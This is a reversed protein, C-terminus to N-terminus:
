TNFKTPYEVNVLSSWFFVPVLHLEQVEYVSYECACCKRYQAEKCEKTIFIEAGEKSDSGGRM